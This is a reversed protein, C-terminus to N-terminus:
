REDYEYDNFTDSFSSFGTDLNTSRRDEDESDSAEVVQKARRGGRGRVNKVRARELEQEERIADFNLKM